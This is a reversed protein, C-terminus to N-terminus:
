MRSPQPPEYGPELGFRIPCLQSNHFAMVRDDAQRCAPCPQTSLRNVCQVGPHDKHMCRKCLEDHYVSLWRNQFDFSLFVSCNYRAHIGDCLECQKYEPAFRKELSWAQQSCVPNVNKHLNAQVDDNTADPANGTSSCAAGTANSRAYYASFVKQQLDYKTYVDIESQIFRKLDNWSPMHMQKDRQQTAGAENAWSDALVARHREWARATEGDLKDAVMIVLVPDIANKNSAKHLLDACKEGKKLLKALEDASPLNMRAITMLKYLGFHMQAYAENYIDNLRQWANNYGGPANGMVSKADGDCAQELMEMKKQTMLIPTKM